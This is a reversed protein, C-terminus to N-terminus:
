LSMVRSCFRCACFESVKSRHEVTEGTGLGTIVFGDVPSSATERASRRRLELDIGGTVGGLVAVGSAKARRFRSESGVMLKHPGM